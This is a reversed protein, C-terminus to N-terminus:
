KNELKAVKEELEKIAEILLPVLREYDVTLYQQDIPAPKVVEPMVAQVQQASVGVERVPQYGLDQATQNAEYYFGSLAKVKDLANEIGGLKTKLRDDSYYATINGTAFIAGAGPDATTGVSFGGNTTVRVRETGNDQVVLPGSSSATTNILLGGTAGSRAITPQVSGGSGVRIVGNVDLTYAPSSTGIGVNGSSDIRMRETAATDFRLIRAANTGFGIGVDYAGSSNSRYVGLEGGGVLNVVGNTATGCDLSVGANTAATYGSATTGSLQINLRCNTGTVSTRGVMVNGSSDIRMHETSNVNFLMPNAGVSNIEGSGGTGYVQIGTAGVRAQVTGEVYLKTSPNTTGIGLNGSSDFRAIEAGGETFAISDAGPSFIGTNTDGTFTISPAAASGNAFASSAVNVAGAFTVSQNSGSITMATTNSSGTKIVLDGTTDGTQVLATTLTTGSSITSM